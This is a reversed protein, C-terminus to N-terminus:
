CVNQYVDGQRMIQLSILQVNHWVLEILIMLMSIQKLEADILVSRFLLILMIHLFNHVNKLVHGLPIIRLGALSVVKWVHNLIWIRIIGMCDLLVSILVHCLYIMRIIFFLITASYYVHAFLLILIIIQPAHMLFYVLLQCNIKSTTIQVNLWVNSLQQTEISYEPHITLVLKLANHIIILTPITRVFLCVCKWLCMLWIDLQKTANNHVPEQATIPFGILHANLYVSMIILLYIQTLQVSKCVDGHVITLMIFVLAHLKAPVILLIRIHEKHANMLVHTITHMFHHVQHALLQLVPWPQPIPWLPVQVFKFVNIQLRMMMTTLLNPTKLAHPYVNRPSLIRLFILLVFWNVCELQNSPLFYGLAHLCVLNQEMIVITPPTLLVHQWVLKLPQIKTITAMPQM